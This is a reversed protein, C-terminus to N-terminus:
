IEKELTIINVLNGSRKVNEEKKYITNQPSIFFTQKRLSKASEVLLQEISNRAKVDMYIDWEDLGLFPSCLTRWLANIFLILTKSREGGSLSTLSVPKGSEGPCMELKLHRKKTSINMKGHIKFYLTKEGFNRIVERKILAEVEEFNGWRKENSYTLREVMLKGDM